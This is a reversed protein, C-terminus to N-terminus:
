SGTESLMHPITNEYVAPMLLTVVTGDGETSDVTVGYPAGYQLRIRAHVNILGIHQNTDYITSELAKKISLLRAAPIGIGNDRICISLDKGTLSASIIIISHGQKTEIGHFVSNEVIPQLLMKMVYLREQEVPANIIFDFRQHFRAHQIKLYSSTIDLENQLTVFDEGKVSYRLIKGIALATDSIETMNHETASARILELSNYIFHPNIQSRLYSLESIKRQIEAEYLAHSKEMIETNLDHISNIMDEFERSTDVIERCGDIALPAKIKRIKEKRIYIITESLKRFPNIFSRTILLWFLLLFLICLFVIVLIRAINQRMQYNLEELAVAGTMYCNLSPLFATQIWFKSTTITFRSNKGVDQRSRLSDPQKEWVQSIISDSSSNTCNIPAIIGCAPDHLIYFTDKSPTFFANSVDVSIFISGITRTRYNINYGFTLYPKVSANYLSSSTLGFCYVGNKDQMQLYMDALEEEKYIDSWHLLDNVLSIDTIYSNVMISSTISELMEEYDSTTLQRYSDAEFIDAFTNNYQFQMCLNTISTQISAIHEEFESISGTTYMDTNAMYTKYISRNTFVCLFSMFILLFAMSILFQTKISLHKLAACGKRFVSLISNKILKESKM